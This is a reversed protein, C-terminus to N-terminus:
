YNMPHSIIKRTEKGMRALSPLCGIPETSIVGEDLESLKMEWRMGEM